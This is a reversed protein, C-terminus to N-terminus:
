ASQFTDCLVSVADQSKAKNTTGLSDKDLLDLHHQGPFTQASQSFGRPKHSGAVACDGRSECCQEGPINEVSMAKINKPFPAHIFYTPCESISNALIM